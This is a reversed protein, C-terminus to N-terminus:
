IKIRTALLMRFLHFFVFYHDLNSVYSSEAESANWFQLFMSGTASLDTHKEREDTELLRSTFM